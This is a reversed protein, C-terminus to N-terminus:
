LRSRRLAGRKTRPYLGRDPKADIGSWQRYCRLAEDPHVAGSWTENDTYVVFTDVKQRFHWCAAGASVFPLM